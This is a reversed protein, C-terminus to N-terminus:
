VREEEAHGLLGSPAFMLVLIILLFGIADKYSSSVYGAALTEVLGLVIGGLVAGPGSGLGGLIAASFGKLGLPLGMESYSLTVPAVVIGAVAGLGAALMFSGLITKAVNVGVLQAGLRNYSAALFAKGSLTRRFFQVLVVLVMLTVGGIWVSQPQIAVGGVQLPTEGSFPQLQHTNRGWVVDALGRMLSAAGITMIIVAEISGRRAAYTAFLAVMAGALIALILAILVALPLSFGAEGLCAASLGGLMVFEGQAFNIAQTANFIISAGLAILAYIAGITIGTAIYQLFETWM